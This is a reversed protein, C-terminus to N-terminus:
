APHPSSRLHFAQTLQEKPLDEREQLPGMATRVAHVARGVFHESSGTPVLHSSAVEGSERSSGGRAGIEDGDARPRCSADLGAQGM